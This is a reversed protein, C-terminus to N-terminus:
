LIPLRHDAERSIGRNKLEVRGQPASHDPGLKSGRHIRFMNPVFQAVSRNGYDAEEHVWNAGPRVEQIESHNM